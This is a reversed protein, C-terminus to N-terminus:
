LIILASSPVEMLSVSFRRVFCLKNDSPTARFLKTVAERVYLNHMRTAHAHSAAAKGGLAKANTNKKSRADLADWHVYVGGKCITISQLIQLMEPRCASNHWRFGSYAPEPFWNQKLIVFTVTVRTLVPPSLSYAAKRLFPYV